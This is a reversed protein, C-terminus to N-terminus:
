WCPVIGDKEMCINELLQKKIEWDALTIPTVYFILTTKIQM